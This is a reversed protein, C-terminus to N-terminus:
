PVIPYDEVWQAVENLAPSLGVIGSTAIPLPIDQTIELGSVVESFWGTATASTADTKFTVGTMVVRLGSVNGFTGENINATNIKTNELHNFNRLSIEKTVLTPDFTGGDQKTIVLTQIYTDFTQEYTTTNSTASYTGIIYVNQLLDYVWYKETQDGRLYVFAKVLPKALPDYDYGIFVDEEVNGGGTELKILDQDEIGDRFWYECPLESGDGAPDKIFIKLGQYRSYQKSILLADAITNKVIRDDVPDKNAIKLGGSVQIAM